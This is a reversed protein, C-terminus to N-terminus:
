QSARESTWEHVYFKFISSDTKKQSFHCITFNQWFKQIKIYNKRSDKESENLMIESQHHCKFDSAWDLDHDLNVIFQHLRWKLIMLVSKWKCRQFYISGFSKKLKNDTAGAPGACVSKYDLPGHLPCENCKAATSGPAAQIPSIILM